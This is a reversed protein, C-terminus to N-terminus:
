VKRWVIGEQYIAERMEPSVSSVDVVDIKYPINSEALMDRAEGVDVRPLPRGTDLAVDIDSRAYHTGRARSGFLYITAEPFLASLVAVIKRQYAQDLNM